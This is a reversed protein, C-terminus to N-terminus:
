APAGLLADFRPQGRYECWAPDNMAWSRVLGQRGGAGALAAALGNMAADEEGLLAALGGLAYASMYPAEEAARTALGKAQAVEVAATEVGKARSLAIALNYATSLSERDSEWAERLASVAEDYRGAYSLWLGLEGSLDSRLDPERALADELDALALDYLGLLGLEAARRAVGVAAM